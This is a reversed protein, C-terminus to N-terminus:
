AKSLEKEALLLTRLGDRAYNELYRSTVEVIEENTESKALRELIISDAGKCMVRIKGNSDRVIATMRKRGSTFEIM